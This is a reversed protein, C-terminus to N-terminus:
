CTGSAVEWVMVEKINSVKFNQYDVEQKVQTISSMPKVSQIMM